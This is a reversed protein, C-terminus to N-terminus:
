MRMGALPTKCTYASLTDQIIADYAIAHLPAFAPKKKKKKLLVKSDIIKSPIEHAEYIKNLM